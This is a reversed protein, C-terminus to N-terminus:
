CSRWLDRLNVLFGKILIKELQREQLYAEQKCKAPVLLTNKWKAELDNGQSKQKNIRPRVEMHRLIFQSEREQLVKM